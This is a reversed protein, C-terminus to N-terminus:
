KAERLANRVLAQAKKAETVSPFLNGVKELDRAVEGMELRDGHEVELFVNLYYVENDM